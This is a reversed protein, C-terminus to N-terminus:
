QGGKSLACASPSLCVQQCRKVMQTTCKNVSVKLALKHNPFRQGGQFIFLEAPLSAEQGQCASAVLGNSPNWLM